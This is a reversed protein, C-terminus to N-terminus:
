QIAANGQWALGLLLATRVRAKEAALAADDWGFSPAAVRAVKDLLEDTLERGAMWLPFRRFVIDELTCPAHHAIKWRLWEDTFRGWLPKGAMRSEYDEPSSLLAKSERNLARGNARTAPFAFDAIEQSIKRFTTYKGGAMFVVGSENRWIEHERSTKAESEEGTDLLPRVGAYTMAIDDPGLRAEPFYEGLVRLLYDVDARNAHIHDLNGHEASDTTGVIVLEAGTGLDKRPIAFIIRGDGAYMVLCREIPLRKWPFILHVGKSPKLKKGPGSPVRAGFAETWPGVCVIVERARIRASGRDREDELVAEYFGDKGRDSVERVKLYNLAEAGRRRADLITELVVEDDLMMADAYYYSGKLGKERV